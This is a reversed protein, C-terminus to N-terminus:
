QTPGHHAPRHAWWFAVCPIILWQAIPSMGIGAIQPMHSSYAWQHTVTTNYWESRVTYGLGFVLTLMGTAISRQQPWGSPRVLALATLLSLGAILLDGATCHLVALAIQRASGDSWLTYLPLQLLEWLLNLTAMSVAYRLTWASRTM